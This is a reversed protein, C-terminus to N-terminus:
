FVCPSFNSYFAFQTQHNNEPANPLHQLYSLSNQHPNNQSCPYSFNTHKEKQGKHHHPKQNNVFTDGAIFSGDGLLLGISGATHGPLHIVTGELGYEKLNMNDSLLIDPTFSEYDKLTKETIKEIKKKM